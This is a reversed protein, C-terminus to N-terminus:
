EVGSMPWGPNQQEPARPVASSGRVESEPPVGEPRPLSDCGAMERHFEPGNAVFEFDLVRWGGFVDNQPRRASGRQRPPPSQGIRDFEIISVLSSKAYTEWLGTSNAGTPSSAYGFECLVLRTMSGRDDRRLVSFTSTGVLERGASASNPRLVSSAFGDPAAELFGPYAWSTSNGERAVYFSEVFGRVFTGEAALPDFKEGAVWRFTVDFGPPLGEDVGSGSEEVGRSDADQTCSGLVFASVVVAVVRLLLTRVM